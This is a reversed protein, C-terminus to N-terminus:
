QASGLGYVSLSLIHSVGDLRVKNAGSSLRGVQIISTVVSKRGSGEISSGM